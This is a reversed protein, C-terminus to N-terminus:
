SVLPQGSELDKPRDWPTNLVYEAVRRVGNVALFAGAIRCGDSPTWGLNIVGTLVGRLDMM